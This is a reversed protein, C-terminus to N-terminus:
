VRAMGENRALWAEWEPDPVEWLEGVLAGDAARHWGTLRYTIPPPQRGALPAQTLTLTGDRTPAVTIRLTLPPTTM